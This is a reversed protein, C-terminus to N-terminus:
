SWSLLALLLIYHQVPYMDTVYLKIKCIRFPIKVQGWTALNLNVTLAAKINLLLYDKLEKGTLSYLIKRPVFLLLPGPLAAIVTQWM